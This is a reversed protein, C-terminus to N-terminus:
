IISVASIRLFGPFAIIIIALFHQGASNTKSQSVNVLTKNLVDFSLMKENLYYPRNGM